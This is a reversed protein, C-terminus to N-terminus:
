AQALRAWAGRGTAARRADRVEAVTRGFRDLDGADLRAGYWQPPAPRFGHRRALVSLRDADELPLRSGISFDREERAMALLM